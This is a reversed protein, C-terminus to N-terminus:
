DLQGASGFRADFIGNLIRDGLRCLTDVVQVSKLDDFGPAIDFIRLDVVPLHRDLQAKSHVVLRSLLALEGRDDRASADSTRTRLDEALVVTLLERRRLRLQKPATAQNKKSIGRKTDGSKERRTNNGIASGEARRTARAIATRTVTVSLTVRLLQRHLRLM